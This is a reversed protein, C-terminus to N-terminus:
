EFFIFSNLNLNVVLQIGCRIPYILGGKKLLLKSTDRRKEPEFLIFLVQNTGNPTMKTEYNNIAAPWLPVEPEKLRFDEDEKSIAILYRITEHAIHIM